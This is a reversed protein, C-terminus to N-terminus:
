PLPSRSPGDDLSGSYALGTDVVVPAYEGTEEDEDLDDAQIEVMEGDDLQVMGKRLMSKEDEWSYRQRLWKELEDLGQKLDKSSDNGGKDGADSQVEEVNARFIKLLKRLWASGNEDALEFLGGEVDEVRGLQLRLVKLAEVFFGGVELLATRCTFIVSLIRKWQELCSYNALCLVMLFCFQLEGLLERAAQAQTLEGEERVEPTRLQSILHGLYWSRDRAMDTRTRGVADESWTQKLDIPLVNLTQLPELASRSEDSSLGPIHETDSPASSISTLEWSTSTEQFSLIQTLLRPTIHNTLQPWTKTTDEEDEDENDDDEAPTQNAQESQLKAGADRLAAYDVLGKNQLQPLQRAIDNTQDEGDEIRELHELQKNWKLTVIQTRLTSPRIYLWLGHRISLSADTGTYIFLPGSPINTIGLFKPSSIFSTLNVGIFTKPPVDTFILTPPLAM